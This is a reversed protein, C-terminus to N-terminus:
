IISVLLYSICNLIQVLYFYNAWAQSLILISTVPDFNWCLGLKHLTAQSLHFLWNMFCYKSQFIVLLKWFLFTVFCNNYNHYNKFIVILKWFLFTMFCYKCQFIVLLKWFLFTVFCDNNQFIVSVKLLLYIKFLWQESINSITELAFHKHEIM